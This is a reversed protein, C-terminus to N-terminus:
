VDQIGSAAEVDGSKRGKEHFNQPSANHQLHQPFCCSIVTCEGGAVDATGPRPTLGAVDQTSSAIEIKGSSRIEVSASGVSCVRPSSPPTCQPTKAVYQAFDPDVSTFISGLWKNSNATPCHPIRTRQAGKQMDEQTVFAHLVEKQDQEQQLVESDPLASKHPSTVPSETLHLILGRHENKWKGDQQLQGYYDHLNERKEQRHSTSTERAALGEPSVMHTRDQLVREPTKRPQACRQQDEDNDRRRHSVEEDAPRASEPSHTSSPKPSKSKKSM